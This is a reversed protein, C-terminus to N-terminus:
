RGSRALVRAVKIDFESFSIKFHDRRPRAGTIRATSNLGDSPATSSNNRLQTGWIHPGTIASKCDSGMNPPTADRWRQAFVAVSGKWHPAFRTHFQVSFAHWYATLRSSNEVDHEAM